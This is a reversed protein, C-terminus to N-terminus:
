SSCFGTNHNMLNWTGFGDVTLTALLGLILGGVCITSFHALRKRHRRLQDDPMTVGFPNLLADQVPPYRSLLLWLSGFAIVAYFLFGLACTFWDNWFVLEALPKPLCKSQGIGLILDRRANMYQFGGVWTTYATQIGAILAVVWAIREWHRRQPEPPEGSNSRRHENASASVTVPMGGINFIGFNKRHWRVSNRWIFYTNIALLHHM